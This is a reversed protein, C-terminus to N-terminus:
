ISHGSTDYLDALFLGKRELISRTDIDPEVIPSATITETILAEIQISQASNYRNRLEIKAVIKIKEVANISGFFVPLSERRLIKLKMTDAFSKTVWYRESRNDLLIRAIKTKGEQYAIVSCTQLLTGKLRPLSFNCGTTVM